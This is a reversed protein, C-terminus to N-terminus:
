SGLQCPASLGRRQTFSQEWQRYVAAGGPISPSTKSTMTDRIRWDLFSPRHEHPNLDVCALALSMGSTQAYRRVSEINVIIIVGEGDLTADLLGVGPEQHPRLEITRLLGDRNFGVTSSFDSL